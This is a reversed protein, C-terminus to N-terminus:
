INVKNTFTNPLDKIKPNYYKGLYKENAKSKQMLTITDYEVKAFKPCM